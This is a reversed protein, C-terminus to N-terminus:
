FCRNVLKISGSIRDEPSPTGLQAIWSQPPNPLSKPRSLSAFVRHMEKWNRLRIEDERSKGFFM